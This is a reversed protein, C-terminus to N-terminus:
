ECSRGFRWAPAGAMHPAAAPHRAVKYKTEICTGEYLEGGGGGGRASVEVGAGASLPLKGSLIFAGMLDRVMHMNAALRGEMRCTNDICASVHEEKSRGVQLAHM